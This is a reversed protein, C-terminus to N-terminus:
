IFEVREYVYSKEKKVKILGGEPDHELFLYFNDDLARPLLEKKEALTVLPQLDYGMIYALNLHGATPILDACYFITRNGDSIELVQQGFTHGNLTVIKLEPTLFHSDNDTFNLLGEAALPEFNEKIYSGRDRDSPNMGWEFNQKRVHYKANPFAPETKGDRTVTSGGTHDFHLHTLFVDTIDEPKVGLAALSSATSHTEQRIDYIHASKEDWKQGMGTDVLVKKNDFEILLGRTALTIRNQSDPPNTRQWLNRPIIGFMAGGDLAFFGHEVVSLKLKGIQM